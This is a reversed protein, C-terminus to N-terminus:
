GQVFTHIGKGVVPDSLGHCTTKDVKLVDGSSVVRGAYEGFGQRPM